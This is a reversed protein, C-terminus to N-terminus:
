GDRLHSVDNWTWVVQNDHETGLESVSATSLALLAGGEPALGIWRAALIRLVHGHAFLAVSGTVTQTEAIVRDVRAAVDAAREGGPCGDRWLSWDPREVLIQKRTKGEYQGYNWEMLDPRPEARDGFGALACTDRARSLPSVLVRAFAYRALRGRLREAEARGAETLPIDMRGTHQGTRTWETEGHRVLVLMRKEPAM